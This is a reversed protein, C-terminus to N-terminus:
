LQASVTALRRPIRITFRTHTSFPDYELSGQNQRMISQSISLGMGTGYQVRKTSFFPNFMKEQVEKPIGHGSDTISIEIFSEREQVDIHVWKDSGLESSVADFSNNLLNVIVQVLLHSRCEVRLDVSVNPIRLLVGHNKFRHLCLDTSDSLIQAVSVIEAQDQSSEHHAMTKMSRVIKAIRQGTVEIIDAIRRIDAVEYKGDELMSKLMEVRGLIVGLPNNIEHTIAAAMEGIAGLRSATVLREQQQIITEQARKLESIDYRVSYYQEPKGDAGLFPVITTNVWYHEGSKKRNCIEGRWVQGQSIARWMNIFFSKPHLGSNLMRHNEGILEEASYGSIEVFKSNVYTIKGSVDTAAVIASQDLALKQDFLQKYLIQGDAPSLKSIDPQTSFLNTNVSMNDLAGVAWLGILVCMRSM